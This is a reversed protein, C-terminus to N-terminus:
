NISYFFIEGDESYSIILDNIGREYISLGLINKYHIKELIQNLKFDRDYIYINNYVDNKMEKKGGCLIIVEKKKYYKILQTFDGGYEYIYFDLEKNRIVKKERINYISLNIFGFECFDFIGSLFLINNEYFSIAARVTLEKLNSNNKDIKEIKDKKLNFIFLNDFYSSLLINYQEFVFIDEDNLDLEIKTIFQYKNKDIPKWIFITNTDTIAIINKKYYKIM